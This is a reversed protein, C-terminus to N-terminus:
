NPHYIDIMGLSTRIDEYSRRPLAKTLIDATQNCSSVHTVAIIDQDIKEKIFHRDIEVHKTRDRHVLNKAMSISARNDCLIKMTSNTPIRIEELMRKLWIGECIGHAMARLEAEASSRAVVSQKKSRWTVLNGWGFTCYGTTLKRDSAFGAWDSDTYVEIGKDSNKKFYLGRGPTGKLYQLIRRM